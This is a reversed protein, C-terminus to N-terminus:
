EERYFKVGNDAMTGRLAVLDARVTGRTDEDGARELADMSIELMNESFHLADLVEDRYYNLNWCTTKM